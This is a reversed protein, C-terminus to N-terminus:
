LELFNSNAKAARIVKLAHEGMDAGLKGGTIAHLIRREGKVPEFRKTYRTIANKISAEANKIEHDFNKLAIQIERTESLSPNSLQKLYFKRQGEALHLRQFQVQIKDELKNIAKEGLNIQM